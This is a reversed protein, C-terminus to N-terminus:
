YLKRDKVFRGLVNWWWLGKKFIIGLPVNEETNVDIVAQGIFYSSDIKNLNGMKVLAQFIM